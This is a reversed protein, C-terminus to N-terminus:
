GKKNREIEKVMYAFADNLRDQATLYNICLDTIKKDSGMEKIDEILLSINIDYERDNYVM